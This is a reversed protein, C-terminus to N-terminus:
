MQLHHLQLPDAESITATVLDEAKLVATVVAAESVHDYPKLPLNGKKVWATM